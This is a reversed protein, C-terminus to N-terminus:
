RLDSDRSGAAVGAFLLCGCMGGVVYGCAALALGFGLVLGLLLGTVGGLIGSVALGVLM